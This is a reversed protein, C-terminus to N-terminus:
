PHGKTVGVAQKDSMFTWGYNNEIVLYNILNELFSKWPKYMEKEVVAM